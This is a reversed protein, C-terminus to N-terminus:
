VWSSASVVTGTTGRARTSGPEVPSTDSTSRRALRARPGPRPGPCRCRATPRQRARHGVPDQQGEVAHPPDALDVGLVLDGHDLRAHRQVLQVGLQRRKPEDVRHGRALLAAREPAVDGGVGAAHTGDAVPHGAVVHQSEFDHEGVARHQAGAPLEDLAGAAVVQRLQEDAGLPRQGIVVSTVTFTWGHEARIPWPAPARRWTPSTACDTGWMTFLPTVGEIRSYMSTDTMPPIVLAAPSSRPTESYTRDLREGIQHDDELAGVGSRTSCSM